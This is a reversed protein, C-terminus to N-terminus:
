SWREADLGHKEYIKAEKTFLYHHTGMSIAPVGVQNEQALPKACVLPSSDLPERGVPRSFLRNSIM